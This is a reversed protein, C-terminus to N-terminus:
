NGVGSVAKVLATREACLSLGYSANEVNCGIFVDDSVASKLAAGVNYKSYPAYSVNRAKLSQGCLEQVEQPLEKMPVVVSSNYDVQSSGNQM